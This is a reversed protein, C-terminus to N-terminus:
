MYMCSYFVPKSKAITCKLPRKNKQQVLIKPREGNRGRAPAAMLGAYTREEILNSEFENLAEVELLFLTVM